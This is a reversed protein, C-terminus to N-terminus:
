QPDPWKETTLWRHTKPPREAWAAVVEDNQRNITKTLEAFHNGYKIIQAATYAYKGLGSDGAMGKSGLFKTTSYWSPCLYFGSNKGGVKVVHGHAIDNRRGSLKEALRVTERLSEFQPWDRGPFALEAERTLELRAAFAILTGWGRQAGLTHSNLLASYLSMLRWEMGEWESLAYGVALYIGERHEDGKPEVPAVNWPCNPDM